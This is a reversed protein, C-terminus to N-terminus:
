WTISSFMLGLICRYCNICKADICIKEEKLSMILEGTGNKAQQQKRASWPSPRRQLAPPENVYLPWLLGARSILLAQLNSQTVRLIILGKTIYAGQAFHILLCQEHARNEGSSDWTLAVWLSMFLYPKLNGGPVGKRKLHFYPFIKNNRM